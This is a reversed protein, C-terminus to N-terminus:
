ALFLTAAAGVVLAFAWVRDVNVWARRLIGVGVVEYVVLALAGATLGMALTHVSAAVGAELAGQALIDAAGHLHEEDGLVFPFLMLGAGHATAMLFSWLALERFTLRMGVWRLHRDSRWLKWIAMAILLGAAFGRIVTESAVVHAENVLLLLLGVSAEHGLALPILALLLAKRSRTQLGIAVAFLWGMAPNLGHFAGLAAVGGLGVDSV